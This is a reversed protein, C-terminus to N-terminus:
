RSDPPGRLRRSRSNIVESGLPSVEVSPPPPHEADAGSALIAAEKRFWALAKEEGETQLRRSFEIALQSERRQLPQLAQNVQRILDNAEREDIAGSSQLAQLADMWIARDAITALSASNTAAESMTDELQRMLADRADRDLGSDEQLTAELQQLFDSMGAMSDSDAVNGKSQTLGVAGSDLMIPQQLM